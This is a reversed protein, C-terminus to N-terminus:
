THARGFRGLKDDRALRRALGPVWRDKVSGNGQTGAGRKAGAPIVTASHNM